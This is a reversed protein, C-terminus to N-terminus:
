EMQAMPYSGLIKMEMCLDDVEDLVKRITADECHGELDIFFCYDWARRKTPWPVLQTLNINHEKFPLLLDVLAGARNKISCLISTKDRDTPGPIEWGLVFFRTANHPHDEIHACLINLDYLRAAEAHAIAAVNPEDRAVQAAQTTSGIDVQPIGSMNNQLWTKCQGFVQPKSYVRKIDERKCKAMLNHHIPLLIEACVRLNADIFMDLTDSVSGETSNEIPVVGYDARRMSVETFVEDISHVSSYEVSGGFRSLAAQHTFTGDPGLYCIQLPKELALSASMIERYIAQLSKGQLPGTNLARVKEYVQRERQPSYIAMNEKQKFRGVESVIRARENLLRVIQADLADIRDRLEDLSM